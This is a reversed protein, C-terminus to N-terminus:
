FPLGIAFHFATDKFALNTLWREGQPMNPNHLKLGWDLRLVMLDAINYRIGLGTNLAIQKYFQTFQFRAGDRNEGASNMWINGADAFVAFSLGYLAHIRYEVNAEIRMDGLQNPYIDTEPSYEVSGPGLTRVQWGRMSNSGGAFFQREFPIVNSNGYAYGGAVLFRWALQSRQAFNTRGSVEATARVYQTFRLGFLNYYKEGDSEIPKGLLSTLGRFLNGNADGFIKFTFGESNISKSTNYVYSTSAGAILQSKYSNRLYPNDIDELFGEDVWPVDVVNIDAPNITFKAGNRFTWGYGFVGSFLTRNYFPRRQISYTLSIKSEANKYLSAKDNSIPLWFRPATLSATVGFEYANKETKAKMFEYAGRFTLNFNEAGRLLNRNGYGLSLAISYYDSTTSTEFEGNFSHRTSPTCQIYCNIQQEITSVDQHSPDPLTVTILEDDAGQVIPSFLINPNYSLRRLNEATRNVTSQNFIENPSLRVAEVLIKPRILLRNDYLLTVGNYEISDYVITQAAEITMTPDYFTNVVIRNLRYIPHNRVVEKGNQDVSVPQQRINLTLDVKNSGVTSDATYNIYNIGFGWFGEDRLYNSIRVREKELISNQFQVGSKITSNITDNFLIKELFKDAVNYKIKSIFYPKGPDIDYKVVVKRKASDAKLTDRVQANFYGNSILYLDIEKDSKKTLSSDYIVPPQGMSNRWFRQWWGNKATDTSNYFALPLDLWLLKKNPRQQIYEELVGSSLKFAEVESRKKTKNEKLELENKVLLFEGQPVYKTVSCSVFILLSILVIYSRNKM